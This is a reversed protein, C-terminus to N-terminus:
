RSAGGCKAEVKKGIYADNLQHYNEFDYEKNTLSCNKDGYMFTVEAMITPQNAEAEVLPRGGIYKVKLDKVEQEFRLWLVYPDKQTQKLKAIKVHVTPLEIGPSPSPNAPPNTPPKTPPNTPTKNEEQAAALDQQAQELKQRLDELEAANSVNGTALEGELDQIKQTLTTIKTRLGAVEADAAGRSGDFQKSKPQCVKGVAVKDPPCKIPAAPDRACGFALFCFSLILLKHFM